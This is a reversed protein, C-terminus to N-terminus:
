LDYVPKAQPHDGMTVHDGTLCLVNRVGFIHAALLDSLLAIRNRDRTVVQYVPEIGEDLLLKCGVLSSARMVATQNDTVNVATVSDKFYRTAEHIVPDINIGKPPGIEGTFVFEGADLKEQLKSVPQSM